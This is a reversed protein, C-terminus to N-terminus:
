IDMIKIKFWFIPIDDADERQEEGTVVPGRNGKRTEGPEGWMSFPIVM